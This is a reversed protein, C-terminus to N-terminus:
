FPRAQEPCLRVGMRAKRGSLNRGVSDALRTRTGPIPQHARPPFLNPFFRLDMVVRFGGTGDSLWASIASQIVLPTIGSICGMTARTSSDIRSVIGPSRYAM